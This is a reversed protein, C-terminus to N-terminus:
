KELHILSLFAFYSTITTFRCHLTRRNKDCFTCISLNFFGWFLDYVQQYFTTDTLDDDASQNDGLDTDAHEHVTPIVFAAKPTKASMAYSPTALAAASARPLFSPISRADRELDAVRLVYKEYLRVINFKSVHM